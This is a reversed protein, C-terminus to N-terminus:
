KAKKYYERKAKKYYEKLIKKGKEYGKNYNLIKIEKNPADTKIIITEGNNSGEVIKISSIEEYKIQIRKKLLAYQIVDHEGIMTKSICFGLTQIFLVITFASFLATYVWYENHLISYLTMGGIFITFIGWLVPMYLYPRIIYEGNENAEIIDIDEKDFKKALYKALRMIILNRLIEM